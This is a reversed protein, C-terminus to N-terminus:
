ADRGTLRASSLPGTPCVATRDDADRPDASARNGDPDIPSKELCRWGLRRTEREGVLARLLRKALDTFAIRAPPWGRAQGLGNLTLDLAVLRQGALRFSAEEVQLADADAGALECALRYRRASRVTVESWCLAALDVANAGLRPTVGATYSLRARSRAVKHRVM